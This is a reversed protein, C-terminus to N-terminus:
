AVFNQPLKNTMSVPVNLNRLIELYKRSELINM